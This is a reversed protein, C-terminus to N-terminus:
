LNMLLELAEENTLPKTYISDPLNEEGQKEGQDVYPAYSKQPTATRDSKTYLYSITNPIGTIGLTIGTYGIPTLQRKNFNFKEFKNEPVSVGNSNKIELLNGNKDAIFSTRYGKKKVPSYWKPKNEVDYQIRGDKFENLSINAEKKPVRKKNVFFYKGEKEILGTLNPFKIVQDVKPQDVEPKIEPKVVVPEPEITPKIVVPKTEIPPKIESESKVNTKVKVKTEPKTRKVKLTKSLPRGIKKLSRRLGGGMEFTQINIPQNWHNM